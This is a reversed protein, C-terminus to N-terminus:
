LTCKSVEVKREKERVKNMELEIAAEAVEEREKDADEIKKRAQNQVTQMKQEADAIQVRMQQDFEQQMWQYKQQAVKENAAVATQVELQIKRQMEEREKQVEENLRKAHDTPNNAKVKSPDLVLIPLAAGNSPIIAADNTSIAGTASPASITGPAGTVGFAGNADSHANVGTSAAEMWKEIEAHKTDVGVMVETKPTM